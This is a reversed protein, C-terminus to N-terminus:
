TTVEIAIYDAFGTRHVDQIVVYDKADITLTNEVINDFGTIHYVGELEGFINTNNEMIMIPNLSYKGDSERESISGMAIGDANWPYTNPSVWTGMVNRFVGNTRGGRFGFSRTTDSYRTAALGVFMGFCVVPYPFQSPTAFPFLKGVYASEYIPTGVKLAFAIRQPSVSLWYDIQLNHGCLGMEKFGPQTDFSNGSVYGTFAAVSLNYYDAGVSQYSRFGVYIEETGTYGKGKVILERPEISDDYRMIDWNTDTTLTDKLFKLFNQNAFNADDTISGVFNAM